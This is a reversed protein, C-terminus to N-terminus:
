PCPLYWLNLTHLHNLSLHNLKYPFQNAISHISTQKNAVTVSLWYSQLNICRLRGVVVSWVCVCVCVCVCVSINHGLSYSPNYEIIQMTKLGGGGGTHTHTHTHKHTSTNTQMHTDMHKSRNCATKAKIYLRGLASPHTARCRLLSGNIEEGTSM